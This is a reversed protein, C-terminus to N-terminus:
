EDKVEVRSNLKGVRFESVPDCQDKRARSFVTDRRGLTLLYM